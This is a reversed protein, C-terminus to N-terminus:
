EFCNKYDEYSQDHGYLIRDLDICITNDFMKVDMGGEEFYYTGVIKVFDDLQWFPIHVFAMTKGNEEYTGTDAEKLFDYLDPNVNKAM